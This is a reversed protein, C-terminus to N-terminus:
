PATPETIRVSRSTTGDGGADDTVTLSVSYTGASEYRHNVTIGRVAASGDGFDWTYTCRSGCASGEDSTQSADFRVTEETTAVAPDAVIVPVPPWNGIPTGPPAMLRVSVTRPIANQFNNGLPIAQVTVVPASQPMTAPAQPAILGTTARGGADTTATAHTFSVENISPATASFQLTVGSVPQGAGDRVLATIVAQSTGDQTITDPTATLTVSWGGFESPGSVAPVTAKEVNCGAMVAVFPAATVIAGLRRFLTITSM